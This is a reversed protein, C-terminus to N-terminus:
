DSEDVGPCADRQFDPQIGLFDALDAHLLLGCLCGGREETM